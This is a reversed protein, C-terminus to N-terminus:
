IKEVLLMKQLWRKFDPVCLYALCLDGSLQIAMWGLLMVQYCWEVLDFCGSKASYVVGSWGALYKM